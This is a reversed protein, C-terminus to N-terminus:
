DLYVKLVKTFVLMVLEERRVCYNDETGLYTEINNTCLHIYRICISTHINCKSKAYLTLTSGM